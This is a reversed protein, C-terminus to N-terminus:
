RPRQAPNPTSPPMLMIPWWMGGLETARKRQLDFPDSVYASAEIEIMDVQDHQEGCQSCGRRHWYWGALTPVDTTWEPRQNSM